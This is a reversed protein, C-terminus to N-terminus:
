IKHSYVNKVRFVQRIMATRRLTYVSYVEDFISPGSTNQIQVKKM